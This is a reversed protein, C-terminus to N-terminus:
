GSQSQATAKTMKTLMAVIRLLLDRAKSSLDIDMLNLRICLDLIGACETASRRAMRYFRSKELKPFDGSGEAIRLTYPICSCKSASKEVSIPRIQCNPFLDLLIKAAATPNKWNVRLKQQCVPKVIISNL